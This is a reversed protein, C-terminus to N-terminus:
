LRQVIIHRQDGRWVIFAILQRGLHIDMDATALEPVLQSVKGGEYVFVPARPRNSPTSLEMVFWTRQRDAGRVHLRTNQWFSEFSRLPMLEGARWRYLTITDGGSALVLDDGHIFGGALGYRQGGDPLAQVLESHREQLKYLWIDNDVGYHHKQLVVYHPGRIVSWGLGSEFADVSSAGSPATDPYLKALTDAFEARGAEIGPEVHEEGIRRGTVLLLVDTGEVDGDLYSAVFSTDSVWKFEYITASYNAYEVAVNRTILTDLRRRDFDYLVVQTIVKKDHLGQDAMALYRGTPSFAMAEYDGNTFQRSDSGAESHVSDPAAALDVSDRVPQVHVSDTVPQIRATAIQGGPTPTQDGTQACSLVLAAVFARAPVNRISRLSALGGLTLASRILAAYVIPLMPVM